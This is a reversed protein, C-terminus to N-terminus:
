APCADTNTCRRKSLRVAPRHAAVAAEVFRLPAWPSSSDPGLNGRTSPLRCPGEAARRSSVGAPGVRPGALVEAKWRSSQALASM